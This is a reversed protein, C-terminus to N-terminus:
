IHSCDPDIWNVLWTDTIGLAPLPRIGRLVTKLRREAIKPRFQSSIFFSITEWVQRNRIWASAVMAKGEENMWIMGIESKQYRDAM